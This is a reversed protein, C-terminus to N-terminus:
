GSPRVPKVDADIVGADPSGSHSTWRGSARGRPRRGPKPLPRCLLEGNLMLVFPAKLLDLRDPERDDAAPLYNTHEGPM